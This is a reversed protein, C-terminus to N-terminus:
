LPLTNTYTQYYIRYQTLFTQLLKKNKKTFPTLPPIYLEEKGQIISLDDLQEKLTTNKSKLKQFAITLQKITITNKGNSNSTNTNTTM